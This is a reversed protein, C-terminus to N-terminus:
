QPRNAPSNGTPVAQNALPGLVTPQASPQDVHDGFDPRKLRSDGWGGGIAKILRVTAAM